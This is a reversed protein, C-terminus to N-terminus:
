VTAIHTSLCRALGGARSGVFQMDGFSCSSCTHNSLVCTKSHCFGWSRSFLKGRLWSVRGRPGPRVLPVKNDPPASPAFQLLRWRKLLEQCLANPGAEPVFQVSLGREAGRVLHTWALNPRQAAAKVQLILIFEWAQRHTVSFVSCLCLFAFMATDPVLTCAWRMNIIIAVVM